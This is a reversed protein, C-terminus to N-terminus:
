MLQLFLINLRSVCHETFPCMLILPLECSCMDTHFYEVLSSGIMHAYQQAHYPSLLMYSLVLINPLNQSHVSQVYALM